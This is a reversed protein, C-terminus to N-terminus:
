RAKYALKRAPQCTSFTAASRWATPWPTTSTISEYQIVTTHNSRYRGLSMTTTPRAASIATHSITLAIKLRISPVASISPTASGSAIAGRKQACTRSIHLASPM